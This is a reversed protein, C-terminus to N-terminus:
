DYGNYIKNMNSILEAMEDRLEIPSLVEIEDRQSLLEQVFDFTPALHYSFISCGDEKPEEKQSHHLPLTQLYKVKRPFAKIKVDVAEEGIIIGFYDNFFAEPNFDQPLSFTEDLEEMDVFRDLAYIRLGLDSKGLMYWRQRSLKVCYPEVPFSHPEPRNFSRYTLSIVRGSRMASIVDSLYKESSPVADVLIHDKMDSNEQLLNNMCLTHLMWNLTSDDGVENGRIYFGLSRDNKIEIGFMELISAKHNFFTRETLPAGTENLPSKRWQESIEKFSIYGRRNILDILWIYRKFFNVAM